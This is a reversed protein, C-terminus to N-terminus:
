IDRIVSTLEVYLVLLTYLMLLVAIFWLIINQYRTFKFVTAALLAFFLIAFESAWKKAFLVAWYGLQLKRATEVARIEFSIKALLCYSLVLLLALIVIPMINKREM